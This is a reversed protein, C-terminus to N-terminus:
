EQLPDSSVEWATVGTGTLDLAEARMHVSVGMNVWGSFLFLLNSLARWSIFLIELRGM